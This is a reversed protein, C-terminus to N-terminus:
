KNNKKLTVYSIGRKYAVALSSTAAPFSSNSAALTAAVGFAEGGEGGGGGGGGGRGRGRIGGSGDAITFPFTIVIVSTGTAVSSNSSAKSSGNGGASEWNCINTLVNVPFVM